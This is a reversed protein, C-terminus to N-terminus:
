DSLFIIQFTGSSEEMRSGLALFACSGPDPDADSAM